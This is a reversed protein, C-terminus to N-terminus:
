VRMTVEIDMLVSFLRTADACGSCQVATAPESSLSLSSSLSTSTSSSPLIMSGELKRSLDSASLSTSSEHMSDHLVDATTDMENDNNNSNDNSNKTKDGIVTLCAFSFARLREM